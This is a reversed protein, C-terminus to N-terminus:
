ISESQRHLFAQNPPFPQFLYCFYASNTKSLCVVISGDVLKDSKSKLVLVLADLLPCKVISALIITQDNYKSFMAEFYMFCFHLFLSVTLEM